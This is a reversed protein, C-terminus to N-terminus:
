SEFRRDAIGMLELTFTGPTSCFLQRLDNRGLVIGVPAITLVGAAPIILSWVRDGITVTIAAAPPGTILIAEIKEPMYEYTPLVTVTSATAAGTIPASNYEDVLFGRNRAQIALESLAERFRLLSEALFGPSVQEVDETGIPTDKARVHVVADPPLKSHVVKQM